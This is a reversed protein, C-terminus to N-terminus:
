ENLTGDPSTLPGNEAYVVLLQDGPWLTGPEWGCEIVKEYVLKLGNVTLPFKGPEFTYFHEGILNYEKSPVVAILYKKAHSALKELIEFPNVFHELVNSTFVVDYDSRLSKIDECSFSVDPFNKSAKDVASQSFDVGTVNSRPFFKKLLAAGEGEACGADCIDLGNTNIEDTLWGPFFKVAMQVFFESQKGGNYASWNNSSFRGEWYERSNIDL